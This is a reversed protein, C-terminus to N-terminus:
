FQCNCSYAVECLVYTGFSDRCESIPTIIRTKKVVKQKPTTQEEEDSATDPFESLKIMANNVFHLVFKRQPSDFGPRTPSLWM